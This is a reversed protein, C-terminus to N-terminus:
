KGNKKREVERKLSWRSKFKIEYNLYGIKPKYPSYPEKKSNKNEFELLWSGDGYFIVRENRKVKYEKGTEKHIIVCDKESFYYGDEEKQPYNKVQM